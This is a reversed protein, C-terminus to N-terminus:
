KPKIPHFEDVIASGEESDIFRGLPGAALSVFERTMLADKDTKIVTLLLRLAAAHRGDDVLMSVDALTGNM